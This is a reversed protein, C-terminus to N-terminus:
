RVCMILVVVTGAVPAVAFLGLLIAPARPPRYIWLYLLGPVLASGVQVVMGAMVFFLLSLRSWGDHVTIVYYFLHGTFVASFLCLSYCILYGIPLSWASRRESGYELVSM